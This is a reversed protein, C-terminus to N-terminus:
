GHDDVHWSYTLRHALEAPSVGAMMVFRSRELTAETPLAFRSRTTFGFDFGLDAVLEVTEATYDSGPRGYPYAFATVPKGTWTHIANRSREIQERQRERPLRALVPHASTHCGVEFSRDALAKIEGPSLPANIDSEDVAPSAAQELEWENAPSWQIREAEPEGRSRAVHDWWPLCRGAVPESCIFAVAPIGHRELIPQALTFVSRYGDDFTVLVPREPLRPGGALSRRWQELSIPACTERVFRCHAEFESVRVHFAEFPLTSPGHDDRRIGHYCLVAVGPFTRRRLARRYHGTGLMTRKALGAVIPNM